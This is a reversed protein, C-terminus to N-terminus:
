PRSPYERVLRRILRGGLAASIGSAAAWLSNRAAESLTGFVLPKLVGRKKDLVCGQKTPNRLGRKQLTEPVPSLRGSARLADARCVFLVAINAKVIDM